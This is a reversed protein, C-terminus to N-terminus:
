IRKMSMDYEGTGQAMGSGRREIIEGTKQDVDQGQNNVIIDRGDQSVFQTGAAFKEDGTVINTPSHGAQGVAANANPNQLALKIDQSAGAEDTVVRDSPKGVPNNGGIISGMYERQAIDTAPADVFSNTASDYTKLRDTGDNFYFQGDREIMTAGGAALGTGRYTQSKLDNIMQARVDHRELKRADYNLGFGQSDEMFGQLFGQAEKSNVDAYEQNFGRLSKIAELKKGSLSAQNAQVIERQGGTTQHTEIEASTMETPMEGGRAQISTQVDSLDQGAVPNGGVRWDKMGEQVRGEVNGAQAGQQGLVALVKNADAATNVSTKTATSYTKIDQLAKSNADMSKIAKGFVTSQQEMDGDSYVKNWSKMAKVDDKVIRQTTEQGTFGSGDQGTTQVQVSSGDKLAAGDQITSESKLGTEARFSNIVAGAVQGLGKLVAAKQAKAKPSNAKFKEGAKSFKSRLSNRMSQKIGFIGARVGMTAGKVMGGAGAGIGTLMAGTAAIDIYALGKDVANLFGAGSSADAALKSGLFEDGKGAARAKNFAEIEARKWKMTHRLFTSTPEALEGKRDANMAIKALTEAEKDDLHKFEDKLNKKLFAQQAVKHNNELTMQGIRDKVAQSEAGEKDIMKGLEKKQKDSLHSFADNDKMAKYAGGEAKMVDKGMKALAGVAKAVMAGTQNTFVAMTGQADTTNLSRESQNTQGIALSDVMTNQMQFTNTTATSGQVERGKAFGDTYQNMNQQTKTYAAQTNKQMELGTTTQRAKAEALQRQRTEETNTRVATGDVSFDGNFKQKTQLDLGSDGMGAMGFAGDYGGIGNLQSVQTDYKGASVSNSKTNDYSVDGKAAAAGAAKGQDTGLGKSLAETMSFEGSNILSYLLMPILTAILSFVMSLKASSDRLGVLTAATAGNADVAAQLQSTQVHVALFNIVELGLPWLALWLIIKFASGILKVGMGPIAVFAIVIPLLAFVLAQLGGLLYVIMDSFVEAGTIWGAIQSAKAQETNIALAMSDTGTITAAYEHAGTLGNVLAHQVAINAGSGTSGIASYAGQIADTSVLGVNSMYSLSPMSSNAWEEPNGTAADMVTQLETYADKCTLMSEAGTNPDFYRTLRSENLSEMDALIDSSAILAAPNIDGSFIDYMVCQAYYEEFSGKIYSNTITIETSDKIVSGMFNYGKSAVSFDSYSAGGNPLSFNAAFLEQLTHISSTIGSVPVAVIAPVDNVVYWGSGGSHNYQDYVVVDAKSWITAYSFFVAGLFFTALTKSDFQVANKVGMMILGVTLLIVNFTVFDSTNVLVAVVELVEKVLDGVAYVYIPWYKAHDSPDLHIKDVTDFADAVALGPLLMAIFILIPKLFNLTM